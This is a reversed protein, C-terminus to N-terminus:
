DGRSFLETVFESESSPESKPSKGENPVHLRSAPSEGRFAILADAFKALDEASDSAPGALLTTPVSKTAAVEARTKATTLEALAARAAELEEQQKQAETKDRDEIEKLRDEAAKRADREAKLAALGGEGLPADEPKADSVPTVPEVVEPTIPEAPVAETSMVTGKTPAADRRTFGEAM